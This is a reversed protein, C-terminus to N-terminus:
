PKPVPASLTGQVGRKGRVLNAALVQTVGFFWRYFGNSESTAPPLQDILVALVWFTVLQHAVVFQWGANLVTM